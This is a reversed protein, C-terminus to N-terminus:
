TNRVPKLIKGYSVGGLAKKISLFGVNQVKSADTRAGNLHKGEKQM